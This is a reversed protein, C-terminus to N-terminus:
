SVKEFFSTIAQYYDSNKCYAILMSYVLKLDKIKSICFLKKKQNTLRHLEKSNCFYVDNEILFPVISQIKPM